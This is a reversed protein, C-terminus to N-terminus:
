ALKWGLCTAAKGKLMKHFNSVNLSHERSFQHINFVSFIEGSPSKVKYEYSNAKTRTNAEGVNDSKSIFICGEPSYEKLGKTDKDLQYHGTRWGVYGQLKPLDEWFNQFNHWRKCVTIDQYSAGDTLAYVRGLMKAWMDYERSIRGKYSAVAKGVGLFGVGYVTPMYYDKVSGDTIRQKTSTTIYGTDVFQCLFRGKPLAKLVRLKGYNKTQFIKGIM